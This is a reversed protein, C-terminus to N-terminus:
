AWTFTRLAALAVLLATAAILLSFAIMGRQRATLSQVFITVTIGAVIIALSIGGLILTTFGFVYPDMRCTVILALTVAASWAAYFPPAVVIRRFLTM